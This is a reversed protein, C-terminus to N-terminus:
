VNRRKSIKLALKQWEARLSPDKMGSIVLHDVLKSITDTRTRLSHPSFYLISAIIPDNTGVVTRLLDVMSNELWNWADLIALRADRLEQHEKAQAEMKQLYEPSPEPPPEGALRLKSWD